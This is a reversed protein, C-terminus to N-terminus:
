CKQFSQLFDLLHGSILSTVDCRDARDQGVLSQRFMQFEALFGGAGRRLEGSLRGAALRFLCVDAPGSLFVARRAIIRGCAGLMSLDIVGGLREPLYPARAAAGARFLWPRDRNSHRTSPLAGDGLKPEEGRRLPRSTARAFGSVSLPNEGKRDTEPEPLPTWNQSAASALFARVCTTAV